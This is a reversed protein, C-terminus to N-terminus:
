LSFGKQSLAAVRASPTALPASDRLWNLRIRSVARSQDFDGAKMCRRVSLDIGVIIKPKGVGVPIRRSFM